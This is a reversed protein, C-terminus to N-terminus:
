NTSILYIVVTAVVVAGTAIGKFFAKRKEKKAAKRVDKTEQQLAKNEEIKIDIITNKEASAEKELKLTSEVSNLISDCYVANSDASKYAEYLTDKAATTDLDKPYPKLAKRKKKLAATTKEGAAIKVEIKEIKGIHVATSDEFKKTNTVPVSDIGAPQFIVWLLIIIVISQIAIIWNKTM